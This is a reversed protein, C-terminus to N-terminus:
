KIFKPKGMNKIKFGHYIGLFSYIISDIKKLHFINVCLNKLNSILHYLVIVYFRKKTYNKKALYIKNRSILYYSYLPRDSNNQINLHQHWSIVNKTALFKIGLKKARLAMDVEDSYMFLKEDQLGITEYFSRKALNVGGPVSEVIRSQEKIDYINKGSDLLDMFLDKKIGCGFNEVENSDKKLVIPQIMGITSNMIDMLENYLLTIGNQPIRIDNGLLMIADVNPNALALKIGDNYASTCGGNSNRFIFVSNTFNEKIISIYVPESGNDVIIHLYIESRYENYYSVWENIKYNDNLTISILAIKM